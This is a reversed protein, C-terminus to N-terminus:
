LLLATVLTAERLLLAIVKIKRQWAGLDCIRKVYSISSGETPLSKRDSMVQPLNSSTVLLNFARYRMVLGRLYRTGEVTLSEKTGQDCIFFVCVCVCVELLSFHIILICFKLYVQLAKFVCKFFIVYQMCDFLITMVM